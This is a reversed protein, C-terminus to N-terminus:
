RPLLFGEKVEDGPEQVFYNFGTVSSRGKVYPIVTDFEGVKPGKRYSGTFSTGILSEHRFSEGEALLGKSALLSLKASTGTGCPSRDISGSEGSIVCNRFEKDGLELSFETLDVYNLHPETPHQIKLQRNLEARIELGVSRLEMAEEPVLKFGLQEAPVIGFFNGGFCVDLKIKRDGRSPITIEVDRAYVFAPVNELTVDGTVGDKVDVLLKVQGAPSDLVVETQPERKPVVGIDVLTKAIAISAHGCMTVSTGPDMFIVGYHANETVPPTLYAAVMEAHGRPECTIFTRFDLLETNLYKWKEAM